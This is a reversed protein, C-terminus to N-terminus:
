GNALRRLMAVGIFGVVPWFVCYLPWETAFVIILKGLENAYDM